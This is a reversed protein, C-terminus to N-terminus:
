QYETNEIVSSMDIDQLNLTFRQINDQIPNVFNSSSFASIHNWLFGEGLVSYACLSRKCNNGTKANPLPAPRVPWTVDQWSAERTLVKEPPVTSAKLMHWWCVEQWQPASQIQCKVTNDSPCSDLGLHINELKYRINKHLITKKFKLQIEKLKWFMIKKNYLFFTTWWITKLALEGCCNM